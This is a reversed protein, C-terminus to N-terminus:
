SLWVCRDVTAVGWFTVLWARQEHTNILANPSSSRTRIILTESLHPSTASYLGFALLVLEWFIWPLRLVLTIIYGIQNTWTSTRGQFHSARVPNWRYLLTNWPSPSPCFHHIGICPLHHSKSNTPVCNKKKREHDPFVLKNTVPLLAIINHLSPICSDLQITTISTYSPVHICTYPLPTPGEGRLAFSFIDNKHTLFHVFHWNLATLLKRIVSYLPLSKWPPLPTPPPPAVQKWAGGVVGRIFNRTM